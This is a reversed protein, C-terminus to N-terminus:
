VSRHWIPNLRKAQPWKRPCHVLIDQKEFHGGELLAFFDRYPLLNQDLWKECQRESQEGSISM